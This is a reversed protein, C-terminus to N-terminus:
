AVLGKLKSAAGSETSFATSAINLSYDPRFKLLILFSLEICYIVSFDQFPGKCLYDKFM